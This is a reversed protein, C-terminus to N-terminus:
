EDASGAVPVAIEPVPRRHYKDWLRLTNRHTPNDWQFGTLEEDLKLSNMLEDPLRGYAKKYKESVDPRDLKLAFSYPELRGFHHTSHQGIELTQRAMRPYIGPIYQHLQIDNKIEFTYAVCSMVPNYFPVPFGITNRFYGELFGNGAVAILGSPIADHHTGHLLVFELESNHGLWHERYFWANIEKLWWLHVVANVAVVVPLFILSFRAYEIVLYWPAILVIHTLLGTGYAHVIELEINTKENITRKWPTQMLVERVLEKKRLHDVLSFTRFATIALFHAWFLALAVTQMLEVRHPLAPTAAILFNELVLVGLAVFYAPTLNQLKYLLMYLLDQPRRFMVPMALEIGHRVAFAAIMFLCLFLAALSMPHWPGYSVAVVGATLVIMVVYDLFDRRQYTVRTKRIGYLNHFAARTKKM